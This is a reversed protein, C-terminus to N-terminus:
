EIIENPFFEKCGERNIFDVKKLDNDAMIYAFLIQEMKVNGMMEKIPETNKNDLEYTDLVMMDQQNAEPTKFCEFGLRDYFSELRAKELLYTKSYFNEMRDEKEPKKLIHKSNNLEYPYASLAVFDVGEMTHIFLLLKKLVDSGIGKNRFPKDIQFKDIFIGKARDDKFMNKYHFLANNLQFNMSKEDILSLDVYSCNAFGYEFSIGNEVSRFMIQFNRIGKDFDPVPEGEIYACPCKYFQFIDVKM